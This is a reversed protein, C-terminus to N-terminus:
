SKYIDSTGHRFIIGDNEGFAPSFRPPVKKLKANNKGTQILNIIEVAVKCSGSHFVHFIYLIHAKKGGCIPSFLCRVGM